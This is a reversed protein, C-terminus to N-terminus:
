PDVFTPTQNPHMDDFRNKPRLTIETEAPSPKWPRAWPESGAVPLVSMRLRACALPIFDVWEVPMETRVPSPQLAAPLHDSLQWQKIEHVRMRITVPASDHTFPQKATERRVVQADSLADPALAYNWKSAPLVEWSPWAENEPYGTIGKHSVWEEQISVSYSLPGHDVTAAGNRPWRTLSLKMEFTVTVEDGARWKREIRVFGSREDTQHIIQGNLTLVTSAAWQPIRLCVAREDHPARHIKFRIDEEFPYVTDATMEWEDTNLSWPGYLWVALGDQTQRVANMTYLPWAMGATHGCCRNFPTYALYSRQQAASRSTNRLPHFPYDDLMPMNAGTLYHLARYDPTYAAPYHNLMIDETLDAPWTQGLIGGIECMSKVLEAMGCTEFAQRPDVCSPRLREDMHLLGRPAQGWTASHQLWWYRATDRQWAENSQRSFVTGYSIRQAFNVAHHDLWEDWAFDSAQFCHIALELAAQNGTTEYYWYLPALADGARFQQIFPRMSGFSGGGWGFNGNRDQPFREGEPLKLAFDIWDRFALLVREDGTVEYHWRFVTLLLIHGWLDTVVRGDRGTIHKLKRPGFWGDPQKTQLILEVYGAAKKLMEEDGLVAALPYYSRLWLPFEEWGDTAEPNIWGNSEWKLFESLQEMQGTVGHALAHLQTYLWGEPRICGPKFVSCSCPALMGQKAAADLSALFAIKV